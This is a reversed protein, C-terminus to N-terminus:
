SFLNKTEYSFIWEWKNESIKEKISISKHDGNKKLVTVTDGLLPTSGSIWYKDKPISIYFGDKQKKWTGFIM